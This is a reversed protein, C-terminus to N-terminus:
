EAPSVHEKYLDLWLNLNGANAERPAVFLGFDVCGLMAAKTKPGLLGDAAGVDCGLDNLITQLEVISQKERPGFKVTNQTVKMNRMLITIPGVFDRFQSTKHEFDRWNGGEGAMVPGLTYYIRSPRKRKGPECQDTVKCKPADTTKVNEAYYIVQGNCKARVWGTKDNTWKIELSLTNWENIKDPKVCQQDSFLIGRAAGLKFIYVFNHLLNGQWSAIRLMPDLGGLYGLPGDVKFDFSYTRSAGVRVSPGGLVERIAGNLCDSEGRGDGYRIDSCERPMIQFRTIGNQTVPNNSGNFKHNSFGTPHPEAVSAFPTTALFLFQVFFLRAFNLFSMVCVKGATSRSPLIALQHLATM